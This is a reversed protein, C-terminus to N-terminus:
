ASFKEIRMANALAIPMLDTAPIRPGLGGHMCSREGFNKVEDARCVESWLIVPVPHWSHYRLRSPTSHDGTVIVVDPNLDMLKPLHQDVEEIIRVKRDFDGDEGSSDTPKIHLFFFDFDEWHKELYSFEKEIDDTAEAVHMGVLKAVGRYMPYAAIALARLGFSEEFSPWDPKKAFGRLLIMNAPHHDRLIDEAQNLFQKILDASKKSEPTLAKPELPRIGTEQPDTDALEANLGEGRLVVLIRYEKVTEIFVEVDPLKIERLLTCLEKNKETPIRGARRDTIVGDSDVSCFNGRAAIDNGTLDFDIGLASLVGRGVQYHIPDYGFLALHAPGSGPTIGAAVPVHLGCIGSSALHDMNPTNATELETLGGHEIPIGGLGDMVVLVIKSDNQNKLDQFMKLDMTYM